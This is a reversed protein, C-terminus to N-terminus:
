ESIIVLNAIRLFKAFIRLIRLFHKQFLCVYFEFYALM